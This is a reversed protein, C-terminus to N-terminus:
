DLAFLSVASIPRFVGQADGKKRVCKDQNKETTENDGNDPVDVGMEGTM